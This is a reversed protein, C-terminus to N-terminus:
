IGGFNLHLSAKKDQGNSIDDIYANYSRNGMVLTVNAPQKGITVNSSVNANLGTQLQNNANSIVGALDNTPIDPMAATAMAQSASDIVGLNRDMGVAIGAPIWKGVQDRMVKSPSGIHLLGKIGGTIKSAVNGIANGIAGFMSKIGNVLGDIINKGIKFLNINQLPKTILGKVANFAASTVTKIGNWVNSITEKMGNVVSTVASKIGNWVSTAVGKIANFVSSTVSKLANWVNSVVTKVANAANSVVSKIANWVTSAIDKIANWAGSWDGKIVATIAKIVDAVVRIAASIVTKISNWIATAVAVLSNWIASWVAKIIDLGASVVSKVADIAASVVSKIVGWVTEVITVLENWVTTAVAVVADWIGSMFASFGSWLGQIVQVVGSVIPSLMGWIAQAIIIIGNWLTTFFAVLGNWIGEVVAIFGNFFAVLGNWVTQAVTIILTWLTQFFAALANWLMEISAIIPAFATVLANWVTVAIQVIGNWLSTFFAAVGNWVAVIAAVVTTVIGVLGNWLGSFFGTVASWVTKITNWANTFFGTIASWVTTAVGVLGQWAGKLWNVFSAWMARGTKTQTFFLVIAAVLAIIVGVLGAKLVDGLAGMAKLATVATRVNNAFILIHGAIAIIPGVAAAFAALGLILNQTAPDAKTFSDVMKGIWDAVGKIAPAMKDGIAIAASELSGGLQEVASAANNQMTKAMKSAAGDSSQLGKTLKDLEPAGAALMANMARGGETGFITANYYDKQKQTMGATAKAYDAVIQTLPKMKGGSDYASFGIKQMADAAEDSPKGLQQMVQALTTGAMSGKIGQNSLIGIAAATMELSQGAAHAQPAVYKMADGMDNAEANTRAAAEAFVDAVHGSSSASLGFANLATSANEAAGAVDGGSVAALNLVGPMAKMIQNSNFGASALNEMGAAAEKASFSTKAGLEVAQAKMAAMEKGTAGSIAQVRSMQAGFDLSVKAAAVGMAALPLTVAKTLTSGVSSMKEGVKGMNTDSAHELTRIQNAANEFTKGFGNDVASLVAEVSYEAM